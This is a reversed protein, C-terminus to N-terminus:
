DWRVDGGYEPPDPATDVGGEPSVGARASRARMAAPRTAAWQRLVDRDGGPRSSEGRRLGVKAWGQLTKLDDVLAARAAQLQVAAVHARRRVAELALDAADLRDALRMGDDLISSGASVTFDARVRELEPRLLRLQRLVSEPREARVRIWPLHTTASTLTGLGVLHRHLDTFMRLWPLAENRVLAVFRERQVAHDAESLGREAYAATFDRVHQAYGVVFPDVDWGITAYAARTAAPDLTLEALTREAQEILAPAACTYLNQGPM